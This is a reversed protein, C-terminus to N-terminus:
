KKKKKTMVAGLQTLASGTMQQLAAAAEATKGATAAEFAQTMMQLIQTQQELMETIVRAMPKHQANGLRKVIAYTDPRLSLVVRKSTTQNPM